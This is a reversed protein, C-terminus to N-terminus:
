NPAPKAGAEVAEREELFLLMIRRVDDRIGSLFRLEGDGEKARVRLLGTFRGERCQKIVQEVLSEAAQM